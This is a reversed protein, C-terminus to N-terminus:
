AGRVGGVACVGMHAKGDAGHTYLCWCGKPVPAILAHCGILRSGRAAHRIWSGASAAPLLARRRLQLQSRARRSLRTWPATQRRGPPQPLSSASSLRRVAVSTRLSEDSLAAQAAGPASTARRIVKVAPAAQALRIVDSARSVFAPRGNTAGSGNSSGSPEGGTASLLTHNSSSGSSPRLFAALKLQPDTRAVPPRKSTIVQTEADDLTQWAGM